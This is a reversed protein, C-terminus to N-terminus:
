FPVPTHDVVTVIEGIHKNALDLDAKVKYCVVQVAMDVALFKIRHGLMMNLREQAQLAEMILLCCEGLRDRWEPRQTAWEHEDYERVSAMDDPSIGEAEMQIQRELFLRGMKSM